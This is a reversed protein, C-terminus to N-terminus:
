SKKEVLLIKISDLKEFNDPKKEWNHVFQLMQASIIKKM